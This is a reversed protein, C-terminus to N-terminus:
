VERLKISVTSIGTAQFARSYKIPATLRVTYVTSTIPHTWQFADAGNRLTTQEFTRVLATDVDPLAIYNVGFNRRARTTRPRTQEYGSAQPSRIAVDELEGDPDLPFSPAM